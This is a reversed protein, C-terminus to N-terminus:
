FCKIAFSLRTTQGYATEAHVLAPPTASPGAYKICDCPDMDARECAVAADEWTDFGGFPTEYLATTANTMSPYHM